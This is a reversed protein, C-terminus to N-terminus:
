PLRRERSRFVVLLDPRWRGVAMDGAVADADSVPWGSLQVQGTPVRRLRLGTALMPSEEYLRWSRPLSKRLSMFLQLRIQNHAATRADHFRPCVGLFHSLTEDQGSGCFLCQRSAARGIRYLYTAVPYTGTMAQMWCKIESSNQRAIVRAVTSGEESRVLDRAFITGRLQVARRANVQGTDGALEAQAVESDAAQEVEAAVAAWAAARHMAESRCQSSLHLLRSVRLHRLRFKSSHSTLHVACTESDLCLRVVYGLALMIPACLQKFLAHM